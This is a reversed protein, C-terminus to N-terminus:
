ARQRRARQVYGCTPTTCARKTQPVGASTRPLGTLENIIPVTAMAGGCNPCRGEANRLQQRHRPCRGGEDGAGDTAAQATCGPVVCQGSM